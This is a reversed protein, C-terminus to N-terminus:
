TNQELGSQLQAEGRLVIKGSQVSISDVTVPVTTNSLDIVPNMKDLALKLAFQPVPIVSLSGKNAKFQIHKDSDSSVAFTGTVSAPVTIGLAKVLITATVDHDNITVKLNEQKQSTNSLQAALYHDISDQGIAAAFTVNGVSKVKQTRVDAKIDRADIDLEDIMLQPSLNVDEGIIDVKRLHGQALQIADSDVVVSYSKASGIANPLANKIGGAVSHDVTQACGATLVTLAILSTILTQNFKVKNM